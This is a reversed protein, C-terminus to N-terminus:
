SRIATHRQHIKQRAKARTQADPQRAWAHEILDRKPHRREARSTVRARAAQLRQVLSKRPDAQGERDPAGQVTLEGASAATGSGGPQGDQEEM